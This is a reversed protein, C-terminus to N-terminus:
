EEKIGNVADEGPTEPDSFDWYEKAQDKNKELYADIANDLEQTGVKEEVEREDSCATVVICFFLAVVKFTKMLFGEIKGTKYRFINNM